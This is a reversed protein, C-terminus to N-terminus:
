NTSGLKEVLMSQLKIAESNEEELRLIREVEEHSEKYRTQKFLINARLIRAQVNASDFDLLDNLAQLSSEIKGSAYYLEALRYGLEYNADDSKFLRTLLTIAEATKGSKELLEVKLISANNYKPDIKLLANVVELALANDGTKRLTNIYEISIRRSSPQLLHAKSLAKIAEKELGGNALSRGYVLLVEASEPISELIENGLKVADDFRKRKNLYRALLLKSPWYFLSSSDAEVRGSEIPEDATNDAFYMLQLFVLMNKDFRKFRKLTDLVNKANGFDNDSMFAIFEAVLVDSKRPDEIEKLVKKASSPRGTSFLNLAQMLRLDARNSARKAAESFEHRANEYELRSFYYEALSFRAKYNDPELLIAKQLTQIIAEQANEKKISMVNGLLLWSKSNDPEFIISRRFAEISKDVQGLEQYAEGLFRLAKAKRTGSSIDVARQLAPISKQYDKSKLLLLGYNMASAQHNPEENLQKEYMQLSKRTQGTKSYALAFYFGTLKLKFNKGPMQEFMLVANKYDKKAVFHAGLREYFLQLDNDSSESDEINGLFDKVNFATDRVASLEILHKQLVPPLLRSSELTVNENIDGEDLTNDELLEQESEIIIILQKNVSSRSLTELWFLVLLLLLAVSVLIPAGLLTAKHFKIERWKLSM